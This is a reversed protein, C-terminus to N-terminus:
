TGHEMTDKHQFINGSMWYSTGAMAIHAEILKSNNTFGNVLCGLYEYNSVYKMVGVDTNTM